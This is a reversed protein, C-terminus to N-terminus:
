KKVKKSKLVTKGSMLNYYRKSQSKLIENIYFTDDHFTYCNLCNICKKSGCNIFINNKFAYDATYVTFCGKIFSYKSLVKSPDVIKKDKISNKWPNSYIVNCNDKLWEPSLDLVKLARAILEPRKTWWGFNVGPNNKILKILNVAHNTNILEGFSEIRFVGYKNKINLVPIEDDSYIRSSILKSVKLYKTDDGNDDPDMWKYLKAMNAAYCGSCICDEGMAQMKKCYENFMCTTSCGDMGSMKGKPDFSSVIGYEAVKCDNSPSFGENFLNRMM